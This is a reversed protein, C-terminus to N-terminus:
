RVLEWETVPHAHTNAKTSAVYGIRRILGTRAAAQFRAGMLPGPAGSVLHRVDNASFPRGRAAVDRIANDIRRCDDDTAHAEVAALADDRRAIGTCPCLEPHQTTAYGHGCRDAQARLYTDLSM